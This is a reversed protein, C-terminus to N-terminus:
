IVSKVVSAFVTTPMLVVGTTMLRVKNKVHLHSVLTM